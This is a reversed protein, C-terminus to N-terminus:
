KHRLYLDYYRKTGVHRPLIRVLWGKSREVKAASRAEEKSHKYSVFQYRKGGFVKVDYSM